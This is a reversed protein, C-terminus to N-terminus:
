NEDDNPPAEFFGRAELFPRAVEADEIKLDHLNIRNPSSMRIPFSKPRTERAFPKRTLKLEAYDIKWEDRELPNDNPFYLNAGSWIDAGSGRSPRKLSVLFGDGTPSRLVVNVLQVDSIAEDIRPALIHRHRIRELHLRRREIREIAIDDGFAVKVYAAAVKQQNAQGGKVIVDIEGSGIDHLVTADSVSRDTIPVVTAQDEFRMRTEPRREVYITAQIMHRRKGTRFDRPRREFWRAVRKAKRDAQPVVSRVTEALQTLADPPLEPPPANRPKRSLRYGGWSRRFVQSDAEAARQAKEFLTPHELFVYIAGSLPDEIAEYEQLASANTGVVSALARRNREDCFSELDKLKIALDVGEESNDLAANFSKEFRAPTEEWDVSSVLRPAEREVLKRLASRDAEAITSTFTQAM